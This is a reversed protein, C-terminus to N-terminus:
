HKLDSRLIQSSQKTMKLLDVLVGKQVLPDVGSGVACTLHLPEELSAITNQCARVNRCLADRLRAADRQLPPVVSSEGGGAYNEHSPSRLGLVVFVDNKTM